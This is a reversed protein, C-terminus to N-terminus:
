RSEWILGYILAVLGALGLISRWYFLDLSPALVLDIYLVINELTLGVFCLAAWLLLRAGSARYGRFLLLACGASTIGCAVYILEAIM